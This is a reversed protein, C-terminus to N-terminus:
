ARRRRCGVILGALCILASSSPEPIITSVRLSSSTSFEGGTDVVGIALTVTTPSAFAASTYTGSVSQSYGFATGNTAMTADALLTFMGNLSLFAIDGLTDNTLYQWDFSITEGALVNFTQKLASGETVDSYGSSVFDVDAFTELDLDLVPENGSLNFQSADDLGSSAATTITASGSLFGVDGTQSWANIDTMFAAHSITSFGIALLPLISYTKM